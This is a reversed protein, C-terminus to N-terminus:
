IRQRGQPSTVITMCARMQGPSANVKWWQSSNSAIMTFFHSNCASSGKEWARDCICICKYVCLVHIISEDWKCTDNYGLQRCAVLTDPLSWGDGSVTGWAGGWCVELRGEHETMGGVLRLDGQRVCTPDKIFIFVSIVAQYQWWWCHSCYEVYLTYMYLVMANSKGKPFCKVGADTAHTVGVTRGNTWCKFLSDERGNCGVGDMWIPGNGRGYYANIRAIPDTFSCYSLSITCCEFHRICALQIAIKMWPQCCMHASLMNHMYERWLVSFPTVYM